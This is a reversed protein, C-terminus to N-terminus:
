SPRDLARTLAEAVQGAGLHLYCMLSALFQHDPCLEKLKHAQDLAETWRELQGLTLARYLFLVPTPPGPAQDLTALAEEPRDAELQILAAQYYFRAEQPSEKLLNNAEALAESHKGQRSLSVAQRLTAWSM